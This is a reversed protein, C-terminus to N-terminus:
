EKWLNHFFSFGFINKYRHQNNSKNPCLHPQFPPFAEDLKPFVNAPGNSHLLVLLTRYLSVEHPTRDQKRSRTTPEKHDKGIHVMQGKTSKRVLHRRVGPVDEFRHGPLFFLM